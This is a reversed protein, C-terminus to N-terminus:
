PRIPQRRGTERAIPTAREAHSGIEKKSADRNAVFALDTSDVRPATREECVCRELRDERLVPSNRFRLAIWTIM